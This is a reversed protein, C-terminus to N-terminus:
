DTQKAFIINRILHDIYIHELLRILNKFIYIRCQDVANIRGFFTNVQTFEVKFIQNMGIFTKHQLTVPVTYQCAVIRECMRNDAHQFPFIISDFGPIRFLTKSKLDQIIRIDFQHSQCSFCSCTLCQQSQSSSQALQRIVFLNQQCTRNYRKRIFVYTEKRSICM